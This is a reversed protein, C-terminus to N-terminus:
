SLGSGPVWEFRLPVSGAIRALRAISLYIDTPSPLDGGSYGMSASRLWKMTQTRLLSALFYCPFAALTSGWDTDLDTYEGESM